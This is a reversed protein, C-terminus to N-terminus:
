RSILTTMGNKMADREFFRQLGFLPCNEKDKDTNRLPENRTVNYENKTCSKKKRKAVRDDNSNPIIQTDFYNDKNSRM